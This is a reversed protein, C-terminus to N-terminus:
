SSTVYKWPLSIMTTSSVEFTASPSSTSIGVRDASADTFLLHTDTDGEVRFDITSHGNENITVPGSHDFELVNKSITRNYFYFQSTDHEISYKHGGGRSFMVSGDDTTNIHLDMDPSGTKIGISESVIFSGSVVKTDGDFDLVLRDPMYASTVNGGEPAGGLAIRSTVGSTANGVFTIFGSTRGSNPQRANNDDYTLNHTIKSSLADGTTNLALGAEAEAHTNTIRVATDMDTYTGNQVEIDLVGRGSTTSGSIQMGYDDIRVRQTGSIGGTYFRIPDTGGSYLDLEHSAAGIKLGGSGNDFIRQDNAFQFKVPQEIHITGDSVYVQDEGACVIGVQNATRNYIGTDTDGIFSYSPTGETGPQVRHSGSILQNGNALTYSLLQGNTNNGNSAAIGDIVNNEGGDNYSCSIQTMTYGTPPDASVAQFNTATWGNDQYNEEMVYRVASTGESNIYVDVGVGEYTSGHVM